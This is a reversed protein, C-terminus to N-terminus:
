PRGVPMSAERSIAQTLSALDAAAIRSELLQRAEEDHGTAADMIGLNVAMREPLGAVNRFPELTRRAEDLQGSLMLSLALDNSVAPDGPLLILARRYLGQAEDHRGLVDLAIAKNALAKVDDPKSALVISLTQIADRSQGAMVQLAGMTRQLELDNPAIKLRHAVLTNADKM